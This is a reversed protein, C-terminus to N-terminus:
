HQPTSSNGGGGGGGMAALAAAVGVGIAIARKSIGAGEARSSEKAVEPKPSEERVVQKEPIDEVDKKETPSEVDTATKPKVIGIAAAYYPGARRFAAEKRECVDGSDLALVSNEILRIVCEGKHVVVGGSFEMTLLRDGEALVMGNHANVYGQGHDVLVLGWLQELSISPGEAGAYEASFFLVPMTLICIVRHLLLSRM